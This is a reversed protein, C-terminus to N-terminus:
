GSTRRHALVGSLIRALQAPHVTESTAVLEAHTWWRHELVSRREVDSWGSDDIAFRRSRACFFHEEQRYRVGEFDFHATRRFVVPGLDAVAFGTEERLERRAAAEVSEGDDLGGGPTFWWSGAEPRAPDCGRLLLVAGDDDVLLVRAAVRDTVRPQTAPGELARGMRATARTRWEFGDLEVIALRDIIVSEDVTWGRIADWAERARPAPVTRAHTLTVHPVYAFGPADIVGLARRIAEIAEQGDEIALYIGAEPAGWCRATTLRLSLPPCASAVLELQSRLEGLLAEGADHVVTIHPRIHRATEPDFRTRIEDVREAVPGPLFM